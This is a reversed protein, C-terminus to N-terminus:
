SSSVIRMAKPSTPVHASFETQSRRHLLHRRRACAFAQSASSILSNVRALLYGFLRRHLRLPFARRLSTGASSAQHAIDLITAFPPRPLRRARLARFTLFTGQRQTVVLTACSTALGNASAGPEVPPKAARPMARQQTQAGDCSVIVLLQMPSALSQAQRVRVKAGQRIRLQHRLRVLVPALNDGAGVHV